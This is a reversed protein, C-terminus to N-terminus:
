RHAERDRSDHHSRILPRQVSRARLLERKLAGPYMYTRRWGNRDRLQRSGLSYIDSRLDVACGEAQEPSVHNPTGVMLGSGTLDGMSADTLPKAMGFDAVHVGGHRDLLINSPKIDRHVVQRTWAADLALAVDRTIRLAESVGLPGGRQIRDALTGGDIYVMVLYPITGARGFAYVRVINPHEITALTRAERDFRALAEPDDTMSGRIMKIAVRRGLALDEAAHVCGMGGEGLRHELRYGAIAPARDVAGRPRIATEDDM